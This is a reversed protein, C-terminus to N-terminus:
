LNKAQATFNNKLYEMIKECARLNICEHIQKFDGKDEDLYLASRVEFRPCDKGCNPFVTAVDIIM